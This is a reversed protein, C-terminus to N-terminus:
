SVVLKLLRQLEDHEDQNLKKTLAEDLAAVKPELQRFENEGLESLTLAYRRKDEAHDDRTVIGRDVMRGILDAITSRDLDLELCLDAQSMGPWKHLAALVGFQPGTIEASVLELWLAVHKQQARRILLGTYITM